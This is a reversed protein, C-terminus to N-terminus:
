DRKTPDVGQKMWEAYTKCTKYRMISGTVEYKYCYNRGDAPKATQQDGAATGAARPEATPATALSLAAATIALFSMRYRWIADADTGAHSHQHM